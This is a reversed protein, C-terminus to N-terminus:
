YVSHVFVQVLKHLGAEDDASFRARIPSDIDLVGTVIGDVIIPMVLESESAVDCTIHGEFHHVNDVRLTRAAAAATGCVGKGLPIQVCAPKGQFPGVILKNGEVFYFGVWNVDPLEQYLLAAFNAANAILHRQGSLLAEAQSALLDYDMATSM